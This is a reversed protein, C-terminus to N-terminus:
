GREPQEHAQADGETHEHQRQQAGRQALQRTRRRGVLTLGVCGLVLVGWGAAFAPRAALGRAAGGGLRLATKRAAAADPVGVARFALDGAARNGHVVLEGSPYPDNRLRSGDLPAPPINAYLGLPSDGDWRAEVVALEPAPVPPDFRAAVWRNDRVEAGEIVTEALVAGGPGDRLVVTLRGAPDVPVRFTAVLLDVGAVARSQPAFTQGIGLNADVVVPTTLTPQYAEGSLGACGGALALALV